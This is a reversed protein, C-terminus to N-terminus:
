LHWASKGTRPPVLAELSAIRREVQLIYAAARATNPDLAGELMAGLVAALIGRAEDPNLARDVLLPLVRRSGGKSSAELMEGRRDPDHWFCFGSDAPTAGCHQGDSRKASCVARSLLTEQPSTM